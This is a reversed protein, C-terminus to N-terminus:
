NGAYIRIFFRTDKGDYIHGNEFLPDYLLVDFDNNIMNMGLILAVNYGAVNDTSYVQFTQVRRAGSESKILRDYTRKWQVGYQFQTHEAIKYFLRVIPISQFVNANELRYRAWELRMNVSDEELLRVSPDYADRPDEAADSNSYSWSFKYQPNLTLRNLFNLGKLYGKFSLDPTLTYDFKNVLYLRKLFSGTYPEYRFEYYTTDKAQSRLTRVTYFLQDDGLSFRNEAGLSLKANYLFNPINTYTVGGILNTVAAKRYRLEDTQFYYDMYLYEVEEVEQLRICDNRLNDQLYQGEAGVFYELGMSRKVVNLMASGKLGLNRSDQFEEDVYKVKGAADTYGIQGGSLASPKDITSDSYRSFDMDIAKEYLVSASLELNKVPTCVLKMNGGRIGMSKWGNSTLVYGVKIGNPMDPYPDDDEVDWVGNNDMDNDLSFIPPDTHYLYFDENYDVMGNHNRDFRDVYVGDDDGYGMYMGNPLYTYNAKKNLLRDERSAAKYSNYTGDAYWRNLANGSGLDSPYIPRDNEVYLDGDDNDDLMHFNNNFHQPYYLYDPIGYEEEVFYRTYLRSYSFHQSVMPIELSPDYEPAVNYAMGSMVLFNKIVDRDFRLYAATRYVPDFREGGPYVYEKKNVAVEGNFKVGAVKGRFDVGYTTSGANISYTYSYTRRTTAYVNNKDTEGNAYIVRPSKAIYDGYWSNGYERFDKSSPDTIPQIESANNVTEYATWKPQEYTGQITRTFPGNYQVIDTQKNRLASYGMTVMKDTSVFVLYNGSVTFKFDVRKVKTTDGFHVKAAYSTNFAVIVPKASGSAEMPLTSPVLRLDERVLYIQGKGQEGLEEGNMTMTVDEVRVGPDSSIDPTLDYFEFHIESPIYDRPVNGSFIEEGEKIDSRHHNLYSVGVDVVNAVNTNGHFGWLIDYDGYISKNSYDNWKDYQLVWGDRRDPFDGAEAGVHDQLYREDPLLEGAKVGQWNRVDERDYGIFARGSVDNQSMVFPRTRSILTSFKLVPTWIDWRVGQFNLKNMTLPSFRTQIQSGILFVSKMDGLADKVLVLNNFNESVLSTQFMDNYASDTRESSAEDDSNFSSARMSQLGYILYGNVIHNGFYDYYPIKQQEIEKKSYGTVGFNNYFNEEEQLSQQLSEQGFALVGLGAVVLLAFLLHRNKDM